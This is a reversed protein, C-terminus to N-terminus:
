ERSYQRVKELLTAREIRLVPLSGFVGELARGRAAEDVGEGGYGMTLWKDAHERLTWESWAFPRM